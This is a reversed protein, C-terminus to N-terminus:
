ILSALMKALTGAADERVEHNWCRVVRWGAAELRETRKADKKKAAATTHSTGDVEIIIKDDLLAFDAIINGLVLWQFRYPKGLKAVERDMLQEEHTPNNALKFQHALCPNPRFAL